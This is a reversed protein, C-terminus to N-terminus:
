LAAQSLECFNQPVPPAYESAQAHELAKIRRQIDAVQPAQSDLARFLSEAQIFRRIANDWQGLAVNVEALGNLAIAQGLLDSRVTSIDWAKQYHQASLSNLGAYSYLDGLAEYIVPNNADNATLPELVDVAAAILDERLYLSALNLVHEEPPLAQQDLRDLDAALIASDEPFILEFGAQDFGEDLCSAVGTDALVEVVYYRGRQLAIQGPYLVQTENVTTQWVLWDLMDREDSWRWLRVTYRTAGSVPHWRITFRDSELWTNRPSIVYPIDSQSGGRARGTRLGGGQRNPAQGLQGQCRKIRFFCLLNAQANSPTLLPFTLAAFVLLAATAWHKRLRSRVWRVM